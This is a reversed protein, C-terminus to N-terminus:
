SNFGTETPVNTPGLAPSFVAFNESRENDHRGEERGNHSQQELQAISNQDPLLSHDLPSSLHKPGTLREHSRLRWFNQAALRVLCWAARKLRGITKWPQLRVPRTLRASRNHFTSM